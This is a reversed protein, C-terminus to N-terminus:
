CRRTRGRLLLDVVDVGNVVVGNVVVGNVVVVVVVEVHFVFFSGELRM